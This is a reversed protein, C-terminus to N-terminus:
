DHDPGAGSEQALREDFPGGAGDWVGEPRTGEVLAVSCPARRVVGGNTGKRELPNSDQKAAPDVTDGVVFGAVEGGELLPM